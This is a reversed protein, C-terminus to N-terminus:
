AVEMPCCISRQTVGDAAESPIIVIARLPSDIRFHVDRGALKSLVSNLIRGNFAIAVPEGKVDQLLLEEEASQAGYQSTLRMILNDPRLVVKYLSQDALLIARSLTDLLEERNLTIQTLGEVSDFIREYNPYQECILKCSFTLGDDFVATMTKGDGSLEVDSKGCMAAVISAFRTPIIAKIDPFEVQTESCMAKYTDTAVARLKGNPAHLYVGKLRGNAASDPAVAFVVDSIIRELIPGPVTGGVEDVAPALRAPFEDAPFASLAQKSTGCAVKVTKATGDLIISRDGPLKDLIAALMKGDVTFAGPTIAMGEVRRTVFCELDTAEILVADGDYSFKIHSLIQLPSRGTLAPLVSKVAAALERVTCELRNPRATETPREITSATM